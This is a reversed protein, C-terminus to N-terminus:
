SYRVEGFVAFQLIMDAELADIDGANTYCARGMLLCHAIYKRYGEIFDKQRLEHTLDEECNFITVGDGVAVDTSRYVNGSKEDIPYISSIWYNSGGEFAGTLVDEIFQVDFNIPIEITFSKAM